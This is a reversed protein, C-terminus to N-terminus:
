FALEHVIRAALAQTRNAEDHTPNLEAVEALAWQVKYREALARLERILRVVLAPEVGIAAPASVGPARSAPFVDLCVSIHLHTVRRVFQDLGHALREFHPECCEVDSHWTVGQARAYEFLAGTNASPNVGIVKYEFPQRQSRCHEAIQRFPTGSTGLPRPNRLDFHADFNVVGVCVEGGAGLHRTLGQFSGWAVEHGGGLVIPLGGRALTERVLEALESQAAELADGECVVNGADLARQGGPFALNGLARRIADPGASAGPRGQNRRVGEDCAFGILTAAGALESARDWTEVKQHWRTATPGDEEDSRGSWLALTPPSYV